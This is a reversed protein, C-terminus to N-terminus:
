ASSNRRYITDLIFSTKSINTYRREAGNMVARLQEQYGSIDGASEQILRATEAEPEKLRRDVDGLSMGGKHM